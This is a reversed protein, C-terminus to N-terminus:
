EKKGTLNLIKDIISELKKYHELILVHHYINNDLINEYERDKIIVNYDSKFTSNNKWKLFGFKDVNKLAINKSLYPLIRDEVWKEFVEQTSKNNELEISWQGLANRLHQNSIVDLKGTQTIETLTTTLPNYPRYEITYFVLSDLTRPNIHSIDTNMLTMLELSANRSKNFIDIQEKLLIKNQSYETHLRTILQSEVKKEKNDENWNNIQLAILIGIVVLVIEGIAYKLYKGTKNKEMLDYRIKRFFKIM